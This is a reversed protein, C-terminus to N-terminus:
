VYILNTNNSYTGNLKSRLTIPNINYIFAAEKVTYFIGTDICLVIKLFPNNEGIKNRTDASLKKGSRGKSMKLRTESSVVKNIHYSGILQKTAESHKRGTLANIIKLKTEPSLKGSKDDSKQLRCNMGNEGIVDYYDQWYRERNNLQDEECEEIFEINHNEYGYKLLSRDLRIQKVTHINEYQKFRKEIDMSQGIYIKGSPSTIKYIGIM